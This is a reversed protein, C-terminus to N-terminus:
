EYCFNFYSILIPFVAGIENSGIVQRRKQYVCTLRVNGWPACLGASRRSFFFFSLVSFSERFLFVLFSGSLWGGSMPGDCCRHRLLGQPLFRRVLSLCGGSFRSEAFYSRGCVLSWLSAASLLGLSVWNKRKSIM